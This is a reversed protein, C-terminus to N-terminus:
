FEFFIKRTSVIIQSNDAITIVNAVAFLRNSRDDFINPNAVVTVASRNLIQINLNSFYIIECVVWSATFM